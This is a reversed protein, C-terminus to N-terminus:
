NRNFQRAFNSQAKLVEASACLHGVFAPAHRVNPQQCTHCGLPDQCPLSGRLPGASARARWKRQQESLPPAAALETRYFALKEPALSEFPVERGNLFVTPTGAVGLSHATQWGPFDSTLLREKSIEDSLEPGPWNQNCLGRLHSTRRFTMGAKQTEYLIM